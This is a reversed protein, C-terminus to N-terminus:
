KNLKKKYDAAKGFQIHHIATGGSIYMTPKKSDDGNKWDAFDNMFVEHQQVFILCEEQTFGIELESKSLKTKMKSYYSDVFETISTFTKRVKKPHGSVKKTTYPKGNIMASVTKTLEELTNKIKILEKQNDM